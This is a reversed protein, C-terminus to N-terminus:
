PNNGGIDLHRLFFLVLVHKTLISCRGTNIIKLSLFKPFFCKKLKYFTGDLVPYASNVPTKIRELYFVRKTQGDYNLNVSNVKSQALDPLQKTGNFTEGERWLRYIDVSLWLITPPTRTPVPSHTLMIM